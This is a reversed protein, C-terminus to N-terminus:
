FWRTLTEWLPRGLLLIGVIVALFAAMLVAGACIDLAHGIEPRHEKVLTHVLVEIVTNIMEAVIVVAIIVLLVAWELPRDLGVVLAGVVVILAIIFHVRIHLEKRAAIYIGNLASKFSDGFGRNKEGM